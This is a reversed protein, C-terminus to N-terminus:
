ANDLKERCVKAVDGFTALGSMEDDTIEINLEEEMFMVLEVTELSDIHDELKEGPNSEKIKELDKDGYQEKMVKKIADWVRDGM